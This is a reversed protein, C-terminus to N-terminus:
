INIGSFILSQAVYQTATRIAIMKMFYGAFGKGTLANPMLSFGVSQKSINNKCKLGLGVKFKLLKQMGKWSHWGSFMTLSLLNRRDSESM